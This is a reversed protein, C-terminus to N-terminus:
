RPLRKQGAAMDGIALHSHVHRESLGVRRRDRGGLGAEAGGARIAKLLIRAQWRPLRRRPVAPAGIRERRDPVALDDRQQLRRRSKPRHRDELLDPTAVGLQAIAHAPGHLAPDAGPPRQEPRLLLHHEALDVLGPPHAQRVEGVHAVQHDGDRALRKIVSEIVEPQDVRAELVGMHHQAPLTIDGQRFTQLVGQPRQAAGRVFMAAVAEGRGEAVQVTVGAFVQGQAIVGQAGVVAHLGGAVVGADGVLVARDLARVPVQLLGHLVGHQHAARAVEGVQRGIAPEDVLHGPAVVGLESRADIDLPRGELLQGPAPCGVVFLSDDGHGGGAPENQALHEVAGRRAQDTVSQAHAEIVVAEVDIEAGAELHGQRAAAGAGIALMTVDDVVPM